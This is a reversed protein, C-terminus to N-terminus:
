LYVRGDNDGSALSGDVPNFAVRTVGNTHGRLIQVQKGTLVDWLRVTQDNSGSALTRGDPSFAMELGLGCTGETNKQANEDGYGLFPHHRGM